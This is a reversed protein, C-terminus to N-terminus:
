YIRGGVKKKEEQLWHMILIHHSVIVQLKYIVLKYYNRIEFSKRSRFMKIYSLYLYM